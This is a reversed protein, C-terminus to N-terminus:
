GELEKIAMRLERVTSQLQNIEQKKGELQQKLLRVEGDNDNVSRGIMNDKEAIEAKLKSLLYSLQNVKEELDARDQTL